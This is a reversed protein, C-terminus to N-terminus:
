RYEKGWLDLLTGNNAITDVSIRTVVNDNEDILFMYKNDISIFVKAINLNDQLLKVEKSAIVHTVKEEM